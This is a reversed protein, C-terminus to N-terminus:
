SAVKEFSFAPYRLTLFHVGTFGYAKARARTHTAPRVPRGQMDQFCYFFFLREEPFLNLVGFIPFGGTSSPYRWFFDPFRTITCDQTHAKGDPLISDMTQNPDAPDHRILCDIFVFSFHQGCRDTFADQIM